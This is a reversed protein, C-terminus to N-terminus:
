VASCANSDAVIHINRKLAADDCQLMIGFARIKM